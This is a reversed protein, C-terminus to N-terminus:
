PERGHKILKSHKMLEAANKLAGRDPQPRSEERTLASTCLLGPLAPFRRGGSM